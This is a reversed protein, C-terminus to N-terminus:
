LGLAALTLALALTTLLAVVDTLLTAVLVLVGALLDELAVLVATLAVDLGLFLGGIIPVGTLAGLLGILTVAIDTMITAVLTAIATFDQRKVNRTTGATKLAKLSNAATNAAQTLQNVLPTVQAMTATGNKSFASIEPLVRSNSAQWTQLIGMIDSTDDRKAVEAAAPSGVAFSALALLASAVYAFKM